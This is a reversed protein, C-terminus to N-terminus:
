VLFVPDSHGLKKKSGSIEERAESLPLRTLWPHTLTHSGIEHGAALWDKVQAADMLPAPAEGEAKESLVHDPISM